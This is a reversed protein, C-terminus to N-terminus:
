WHGLWARTDVLFPAAVEVLQEHPATLCQVCSAIEQLEIVGSKSGAAQLKVGTDLVIADM